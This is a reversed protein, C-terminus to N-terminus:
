IGWFCSMMVVQTFYIGHPDSVQLNDMKIIYKVKFFRPDNQKKKWEEATLIASRRFSPAHNVKM